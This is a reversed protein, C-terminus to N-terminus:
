LPKISFRLIRATEEPLLSAVSDLLTDIRELQQATPQAQSTNFSEIWRDVLHAAFTRVADDPDTLAELLFVPADWKPAELFVRLLNRRAEPDSLSRIQRRVIDFDVRTSNATLIDLAASRVSSVDDASAAVAASIVREADLKALAGLACRRIRPSNGSLFPAILDADAPIGTEGVGDIAAALQRPRSDVLAQVYVEKPVVTLQHNAAVFRALGRVRAARDLLVAPFVGAIREPM